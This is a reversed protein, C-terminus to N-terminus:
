IVERASIVDETTIQTGLLEQSRSAKVEGLRLLNAKTEESIIALLTLAAINERVRMDAMNIVPAADLRMKISRANITTGLLFDQFAILEADPILNFISQKSVDKANGSIVWAEVLATGEVNLMDRITSAMGQGSLLHNSDIEAKLVILQEPTLAM